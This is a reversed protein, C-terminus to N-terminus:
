GAGPANAGQVFQEILAEVRRGHAQDAAVAAAGQADAFQTGGGGFQLWHRSPAPRRSRRSRGRLATSMRSLAPWAKCRQNFSGSL